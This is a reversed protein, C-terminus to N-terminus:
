RKNSWRSEPTDHESGPWEDGPPLLRQFLRRPEGSPVRLHRGGHGRHQQEVGSACRICRHELTDSQGAVFLDSGRGAFRRQRRLYRHRHRHYRFTVYHLGTIETNGDAAFVTSTRSWGSRAAPRELQRVLLQSRGHRDGVIRVLQATGRGRQRSQQLRSRCRRDDVDVVVSRNARGYHRGIRDRFQVGVRPRRRDHHECGTTGTPNGIPGTGHASAHDHCQGHLRYGPVFRIRDSATDTLCWRRRTQDGSWLQELHQRRQDLIALHRQSDDVATVAIGEVAVSDVDTIRDGGASAIIAAVLDGNPDISNQLVNALQMSGSADLLPSDNLDNVNVTLTEEYFAGAADTTRVKVVYTSKSEFDLIGDTLILEDSGAGGISFNAVDGGVISYTFTDGVDPDTTSLTAVSYGGSSNIHENVSASDPSIDTPAENVISYHIILQPAITGERSDFTVTRDGGGDPSGIMVGYNAYTGDVWDQVLTTISWSLQGTATVGLSDIATPDFYGGATTWATGTDRNTWNADDSSGNATGEAWSELVQYADINITGGVATAEMNLTASHIIAGVPVSSLDFQVLARQLDGSERDIILQTSVGFNNGTENLKIYTDQVATLVAKDADQQDWLFLFPQNKIEGTNIEQEAPTEFSSGNWRVFNLDSGDDQLALMIQNSFPDASLTMSNLNDGFKDLSKLEVSWGSGSSWTRYRFDDKGSEAYTALLDGSDSEFAVALNLSTSNQTSSEAYLQEGWSSGDWIAYWAKDNDTLVGLALRDSNPDSAITTWRVNGGVGGGSVTITGESSWTSGNWVRYRGDIDNNGYVVIADGSQQEYAVNIDTRDDASSTALTVANGWGDGDWVYATDRSNSDSVVLVMEDSNPSAALQLQRPTAGTYLGLTNVASWTTGNWTAYEVNAGDTWVMLADGSQSEYQVDMGWWYTQSVTGLPNIALTSWSSGDWMQGEITGGTDVGVIIIEDRTPAEAGQMIRWRGVNAASSETGFTLGDWQNLEPTNTGSEAWIATGTNGPALLHDWDQQAHDDFAIGVDIVGVSYELEWDGGLSDHGTDDDSAAVDCDCLAALSDILAQGDATSALDCGYILLDADADLADAWSAIDAAYGAATDLDLRADGLRLGRGDGHSLIHIADVDSLRSLTRTIQEIGDDTASLEVIVWQTPNEADGRLGNLLTDADDVASDVFVVELPLTPDFTPTDALDHDAATVADADAVQDLDGSPSEMAQGDADAFEATLASVLDADPAADVDVGDLGEGSLLIRDELPYFDFVRGNNKNLVVHGAWNQILPLRSAAARAIARM